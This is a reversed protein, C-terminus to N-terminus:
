QTRRNENRCQDNGGQGNGGQGYGGQGYGGQGYGGQGYGGQGNGGQGNGGQGYGGQGNGGQGYGGQGYGGQGYGGQGNGGQGNGGQGFGDQGNGGDFRVTAYVQQGNRVNLVRVRLETRNALIAYNLNGRRYIKRFGNGLYYEVIIDGAELGTRAAPSGPQVYNIREGFTAIVGNKIGIQEFTSRIGLRAHNTAQEPPSFRQQQANAATTVVVILGFVVVALRTSKSISM